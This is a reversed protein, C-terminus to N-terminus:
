GFLVEFLGFGLTAAVVAEIAAFPFADIADAMEPYAAQGLPFVICVVVGVCALRTMLRAGETV